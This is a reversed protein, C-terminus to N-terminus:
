KSKIKLGGSVTDVNIEAGGKGVYYDGDHLSVPFDCDMGGSVTDYELEFSADAPFTLQVAGSVTDADVERPMSHFNAEVNGSTSDAEFESCSGSFAIKGSVTNSHVESCNGSLELRGSTSDLTVSGASIDNASVEGSTTSVYLDREINLGQLEVGASTTGVYVDKMTKPIVVTLEKSPMNIGFNFGIVNIEKSYSINLRSGDVSYELVEDADIGGVASESFSINEGEGYAVRVSGSVWEIKISDIDGGVAYNHEGEAMEVSVPADSPWTSINGNNRDGSFGHRDDHFIDDLEDMDFAYTGDTFLQKPQAGMGVAILSLVVGLVVLSAAAILAILTGKKM